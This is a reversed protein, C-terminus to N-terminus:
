PAFFFFARRPFRGGLGKLRSRMNVFCSALLIWLSLFFFTECTNFSLVVPIVPVATGKVTSNEEFFRWEVV